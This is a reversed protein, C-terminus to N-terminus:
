SSLFTQSEINDREILVVSYSKITPLVANSICILLVAKLSCTKNTTPVSIDLHGIKCEKMGLVTFITETFILLVEIVYIYHDCM